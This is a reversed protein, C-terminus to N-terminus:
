TDPNWSHAKGYALVESAPMYGDGSKILLGVDIFFPHALITTNRNLGVLDAVAPNTPAATGQAVLAAYGRLIELQKAFSVRDTPLPKTPRDGDGKSKDKQTPVDKNAPITGAVRPEAM